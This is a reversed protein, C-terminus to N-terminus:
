PVLQHLSTAIAYYDGNVTIATGAANLFKAETKLGCCKWLTASKYVFAQDCFSFNGILRVM